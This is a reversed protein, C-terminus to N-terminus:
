IIQFAILYRALPVVMRQQDITWTRAYFNQKGERTLGLFFLPSILVLFSLSLSFDCIPYKLMEDVARCIGNGWTDRRLIM